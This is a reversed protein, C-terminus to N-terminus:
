DGNLRAFNTHGALTFAGGILITANSQIAIGNVTGQFNGSTYFGSDLSGDSNLRCIGPRAIGNIQRFPGGLIIKGDPQLALANVITDAGTGPNFSADLGGSSLLRGVGRYRFSGVFDFAGAILIRGDPQTLTALVPNNPQGSVPPAFSLDVQGPSMTGALASILLLFPACLCSLKKLGTSKCKSSHRM